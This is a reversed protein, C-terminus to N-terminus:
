EKEMIMVVGEWNDNVGEALYKKSKKLYLQAAKDNPNLEVINNLISAANSFDKAYYSSLAGLFEEIYSLVLEEYEIPAGDLCEYIGVPKQKGKVQVQGLYRFQFENTNNLKSCADESLIISSGFVKTLGEMRSTTNVTDAVTAADTRKEDGIIGMILPGTHLGIGIKLLQRNESSRNQNYEETQVQMQIAARLADAPNNQFIAMIGDGLYQIIIGQNDRIIPGMRGVYANVFQFNEEPSMKESLGTYDRIDSFFVTVERHVQDGLRVDTIMERGIARIFEHPVFKNIAMHIKHLNLHTRIRALFEDKSFPKRIYDNAGTELGQVLDAVQDKATVMIIPLESSSYRKRIKRCVEYGSIRPMMVDLLVLDFNAGSEIIDLAESGNLVATIQYEETALHNKLVQHNIPEDDVVLIRMKDKPDNNLIAVEKNKEILLSGILDSKEKSISKPEVPQMNQEVMEEIAVPLTFFFSSGKGVESKVWMEGGHLEILRKSISLGLGTGAFERSISGDAQEFEQFIADMKDQPIGIGSDTVTIEVQEDKQAAEIKVYGKETFKVANGILNYFVQQLRNEDAMVFPLTPDINNLLEVNKDRVLPFCVEMVLDAVTKLGVPKQNLTIDKNKIKSFDLLDNVLSTLRKGSAIIMALNEKQFPDNSQDFLAESIGVIGHLPTRLEHSTNALFQDKLQDVRILQEAREQEREAREKELALQRDKIQQRQKNRNWIFYGILLLILFIAGGIVRNLQQKSKLEKLKKEAELQDIEAQQKETEFRTQLEALQNIRNENLLSDRADNYNKFYDLSQRYNGSSQHTEALSLYIDRQLPIDGIEHAINEAKQFDSIAAQLRGQEKKLNGINLYSTAVGRRNKQDRWIELSQYFDKEAAEFFRREQKLKGLKQYVNALGVLYNIETLVNKAQNLYEAAKESDGMELYTEGLKTNIDGVEKNLKIKEAVELGAMFHEIAEDYIKQNKYSLGIQKNAIAVGKQNKKAESINLYKIYEALAKEYLGQQEYLAGLKSYILGIRLTDALQESIVLSTQLHHFASDYNSVQLHISALSVHSNALGKFDNNKKFVALTKKVLLLATDPKGENMYIPTLNNYLSAAFDARGLNLFYDLSNNFHKKAKPYNGQHVYTTAMNASIKAVELFDGIRESIEISNQYYERASEFDGRQNHVNGISAYSAAIGIDDKNKKAVDLGVDFYHLASDLTGKNRFYYGVLQIAKVKKSIDSISDAFAVTKHAYKLAEDPNNYLLRYGINLLLDVKATDPPNQELRQLLSDLITNQASLNVCFIVGLLLICNSLFKFQKM